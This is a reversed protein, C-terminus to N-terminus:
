AIEQLRDSDSSMEKKQFRDQSLLYTVYNSLEDKGTKNLSQFLDLLEREEDALVDASSEQEDLSRNFFEDITIGFFACLAPVNEIDISSKGTRWASVAQKSVGVAAALESGNIDREDMLDILTLRIENKTNM